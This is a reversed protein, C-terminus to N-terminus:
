LLFCSLLLLILEGQFLCVLVVVLVVVSEVWGGLHSGNGFSKGKTSGQFAMTVPDGAKSGSRFVGVKQQRRRAVLRHDDPGQGVGASSIVVGVSISTTGKASVGVKDGINDDRGITGKGERGTPISFQAEPIDATSLSGTTKDSVVLINKGNGERNVITM